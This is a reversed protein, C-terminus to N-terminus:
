EQDFQNLKISPLIHTEHTPVKNWRFKNQARENRRFDNLDYYSVEVVILVFVDFTAVRKHFAVCHANIPNVTATKKNIRKM